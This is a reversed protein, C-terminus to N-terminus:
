LGSPEGFCRRYRCPARSAPGAVCVSVMSAAARSGAVAVRNQHALPAGTLREVRSGLHSAKQGSAHDFSLPM